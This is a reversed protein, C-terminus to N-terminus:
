DSLQQDLVEALDLVQIKETLGKSRIADELM